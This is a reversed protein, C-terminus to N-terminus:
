GEERFFTLAPTTTVLYYVSRETSKNDKGLYKLMVKIRVNPGLMESDGVIEYAVLKTGRKWLEEYVVVEPPTKVAEELKTGAQWADLMRKAIKMAQKSDSAPATTPGCGVCLFLFFLLPCALSSLLIFNRM